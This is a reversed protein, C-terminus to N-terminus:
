AKFLDVRGNFEENIVYYASNDEPKVYIAVNEIEKEDHGESIFQSKVSEKIEEVNVECDQYQVVLAAEVSKAKSAKSTTKATTKSTAKKTTTKSTKEEKKTVEKPTKAKKVEKTAKPQSKTTKTAKVDNTTVEVEEVVGKKSTAKTTSEAAKTDKLTVVPEAVKAAVTTAKTKEVKKTVNTGKKQM